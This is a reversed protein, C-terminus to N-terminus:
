SEHHRKALHLIRVTREAAFSFAPRTGPREVFTGCM